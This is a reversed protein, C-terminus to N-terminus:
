CESLSLSPPREKRLGVVAILMQLVLVCLASFFSLKMVGLSTSLDLLFLGLLQCLVMLTIYAASGWWFLWKRASNMTWVSTSVFGIGGTAILWILQQDLHNYKPGLVFLYFRPFLYASYTLLLALLFAGGMVLLFKRALDQAAARAIAPEVVVLNFASLLLFIQGIRGLAAVEAVNSLRGFYSIIFIQIQGFFCNFLSSPMIPLLYRFIAKQEAKCGGDVHYVSGANTKYQNGIMWVACANVVLLSFANLLNCKLLLYNILLRALGSIGQPLYYAKLKKHVLLPASYISCNAQWYVTAIIPLVSLLVWTSGTWKSSYFIPALCLVAPVAIFFFKRRLSQAAAMYAGFVQTDKYREGVLAIISGSFGFDSLGNMLTLLSFWISFIALEEMSLWRLLLFGNIVGLLQILLQGKFFRSLYRGHRRVLGEFLPVYQRIKDAAVAM